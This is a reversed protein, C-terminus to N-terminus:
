SPPPEDVRFLEASYTDGKRRIEIAQDQLDEVHDSIFKVLEEKDSTKINTLM